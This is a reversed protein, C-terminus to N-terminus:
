RNSVKCTSLGFVSSIPCLRPAATAMSVAGPLVATGMRLLDAFAPLGSLVPMVVLMAGGILRALRDPPGVTIRM